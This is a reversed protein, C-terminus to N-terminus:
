SRHINALKSDAEKNTKAKCTLQLEEKIMTTIIATWFISIIELETTTLAEVAQIEQAQYSKDQFKLVEQNVEQQNM